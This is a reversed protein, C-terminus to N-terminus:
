VRSRSVPSALFAELDVPTGLGYMGDEVCGINEFGVSSGEAILQNYTPAVYFEGNVRLGRAIMADAARVYDSGRAFNYIGVTAENSVVEKEVVEVVDGRDDLRVYSWKPHDAWMTMILGALAPDDSRRLYDDIDSEVWQDSNAAMLPADTDILERALLVTCAAGETVGDVTVIECGPAIEALRAAMGYRRVHEALCLFVFRHPRSPRLNEVVWEIMPKGHVSILPKPVDYGADAFRSGRGAMPIVINLPEAM